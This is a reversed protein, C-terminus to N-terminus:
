SINLLLMAQAINERAPFQDFSLVTRPHIFKGDM